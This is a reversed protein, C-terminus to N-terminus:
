GSCACERRDLRVNFLPHEATVGIRSTEGNASELTLWLVDNAQRAMVATVPFVGSQGTEENRAVVLDGERLTEIAVNGEPTLVETGAAFSMRPSKKCKCKKKAKVQQRCSGARAALLQISAMDYQGDLVMAIGMLVTSIKNALCLAGRGVKRSSIRAIGIV